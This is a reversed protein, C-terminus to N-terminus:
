LSLLWCFMVADTMQPEFGNTAVIEDFPTAVPIAAPCVVILAVAPETFAEANNVTVEAVSTLMATDGPVGLMGDPVVCCNLAVPLNLSLLM